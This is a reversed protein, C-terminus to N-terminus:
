GLKFFFISSKTGAQDFSVRVPFILLAVTALYSLASPADPISQARSGIRRSGLNDKRFSDKLNYGEDARIPDLDLKWQHGAIEKIDGTLRM